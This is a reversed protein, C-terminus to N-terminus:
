KRIAMGKALTNGSKIVSLGRLMSLMLYAEKQLLSFWSFIWLFPDLTVLNKLNFKCFCNNPLSAPLIPPFLPTTPFPPVCIGTFFFLAKM